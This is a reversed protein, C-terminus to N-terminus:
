SGRTARVAAEQPPRTVPQAAAAAPAPPQAGSQDVVEDLTTMKDPTMLQKEGLGINYLVRSMNEEILFEVLGQTVPIVIGVLERDHTLALTHGGAGAQEIQKASLDGIRVTLVSPDPKGEGSPNLLAQLREVTERTEPPQVVQGGVLAAVLPVALREPTGRVPGEDHGGRTDAQAVVDDITLMPTGSAVAQEGEAISQRAHSWNYDIMHEVWAQTVPVIVGILAGRNTIALPKGDRVKERLAAGRIERIKVTEV